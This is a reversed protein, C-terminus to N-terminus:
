LPSVDHMLPQDQYEEVSVECCVRPDDRLIMGELGLASTRPQYRSMCFDRAAYRICRKARGSSRLAVCIFGSSLSRPNMRLAQIDSTDLQHDFNPM